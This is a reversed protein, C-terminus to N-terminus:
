HHEAPPPNQTFDVGIQAAFSDRGKDGNQETWVYDYISSPDPFAEKQVQKYADTIKKLAADHVSKIQDKNMVKQKILKEEFVDICDEENWRPAGSASSHGYLRSVSIELLFPKREKRVYNMASELGEWAEFVDNGNIVANKIGFATGRDSIYKEGHQGEWPTSIGYRNNTVIMLLPLEGAPRSSWVLASAFDGEATGADGGTVVTIGKCGAERQAHATGLSQLYQPEICSFVPVVNWKKIAYHNVFNRGGSYPDTSVARMQRISDISEGGMALITASARYHLHLFDHQIGQGKNILMGFPIAFAEEGPGGIWFYGEGAKNMKILREELIRAEVMLAHIERLKEPSLKKGAM